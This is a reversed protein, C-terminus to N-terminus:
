LTQIFAYSFSVSALTGSTNIWCATPNTVPAHARFKQALPLVQPTSATTELILQTEGLTCGGNPAWGFQVAGVATAGGFSVVMSCIVFTRGAIGGLSQNAGNTVLLTSAQDCEVPSSSGNSGLAPPYYSIPAASSSYFATQTGATSVLRVRSSPYYGGLPLNHCASDGPAAYTAQALTITVTPTVTEVSITGQFGTNCYLVYNAAQGFDQFYPKGNGGSTITGAGQNTWLPAFNAQIGVTGANQASVHSTPEIMVNVLLLAAIIMVVAISVGVVKLFTESVQM